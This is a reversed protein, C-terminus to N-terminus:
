KYNDPLDNQFVIVSDTTIYKQMDAVAEKISDVKKVIVQQKDSKKLGGYIADANIGMLYCVDAIKSLMEGLNFNQEQAKSGLEVIGQSVIIKKGKYANLVEILGKVGETNANYSDDIIYGKLSRILELRHPVYPLYAAVDLMKHPDCNLKHALAFALSINIANISGILPTVVKYQELNQSLSFSTKDISVSIDSIKYDIGEKGVSVKTADGQLFCGSSNVDDANLVCFSEAKLFNLIESKAAIVNSLTKFTSLHQGTLGTVIAHNPPFLKCLRKIDGIRKAGKELIVIMDQTLKASNIFKALGLPTNFSNPSAEVKYKKSLFANLINKVSTKAYSGVISIVTCKTNILKKQAKKIYYANIIQEVPFALCNALLTIPLFAIPLIYGYWLFNAILYLAFLIVTWRIVRRTFKLPVKKKTIVFPILAACVVIACYLAAAQWFICICLQAISLLVSLLFFNNFILSKSARLFFYSNLQMLWIYYLSVFCSIASLLVILTETM